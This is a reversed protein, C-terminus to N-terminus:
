LSKVPLVYGIRLSLAIFDIEIAKFGFSLQNFLDAILSMLPFTGTPYELM